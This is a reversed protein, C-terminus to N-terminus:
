VSLDLLAGRWPSPISAVLGGGSKTVNYRENQFFNDNNGNNTATNQSSALPQNRQTIQSLQEQQQDKLRQQFVETRVNRVNSQQLPSQATLLLTETSIVM